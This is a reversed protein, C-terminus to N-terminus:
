LIKSIQQLHEKVKNLAHQKVLDEIVSRSIEINTANNIVDASNKNVNCLASNDVHPTVKPLHKCKEILSQLLEIM